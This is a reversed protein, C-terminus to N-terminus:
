QGVSLITATIASVAVVLTFPGASDTLNVTVVMVGATLTVKATVVAVREDKLCEAEIGARIRALDAPGLDDDIFQTLDFGYNADDILRGRPTILRRLVAQALVTRGSVELGTADLDQLCSLDRGLEAM